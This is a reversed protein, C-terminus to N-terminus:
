GEQDSLLTRLESVTKVIHTPECAELEGDGGYGYLVGISDIGFKKASLIDHSRDGIMVTKEKDIDGLSELAFALVDDKSSKKNDFKIGSVIDFYSLLGYRELAIKAFKTPKCTAIALTKSQKYFHTVADAMGEYLKQQHIGSKRYYERFKEIAQLTQREDFGFHDSFCETLPPGVCFALSSLDTVQMDFSELAYRVSKTIGEESQSITGDFDFILTEYSKKDAM